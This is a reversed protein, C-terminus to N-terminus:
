PAIDTGSQTFDAIHFANQCSHDVARCVGFLQTRKALTELLDGVDLDAKFARSRRQHCTQKVVHIHQLIKTLYQVIRQHIIRRKGHALASHESVAVATFQVIQAIRHLVTRRHDCTQFCSFLFSCANRLQSRAKVTHEAIIDFHGIRVFVFDGFIINAFLRKDAAFPIDRLFQFLKFLLDEAGLFADAGQFVLHEFLEAPDDAIRHITDCACGTRNGYKIRDRRQRLDCKVFAVGARVDCVAAHYPHLFATVGHHFRQQIVM